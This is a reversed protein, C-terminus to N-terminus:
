VSIVPCNLLFSLLRMKEKPKHEKVEYWSSHKWSVIQRVQSGTRQAQFFFAFPTPPQCHCLQHDFFGPVWLQEDVCYDPMVTAHSLLDKVPIKSNWRKCESAVIIGAKKVDICFSISPSRLSAFFSTVFCYVISDLINLHSVGGFLGFDIIKKWHNNQYLQKQGHYDVNQIINEKCKIVPFVQLHVPPIPPSQDIQHVELLTNPCPGSPFSHQTAPMGHFISWQYGHACRSCPSMCM